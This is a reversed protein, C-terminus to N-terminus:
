REDHAGTVLEMLRHRPVLLRRGIQVTPIEGSRAAQYAAGRSIGLLEAAEPVSLTLAEASPRSTPPRPLMLRIAVRDGDVVAVRRRHLRGVASTVKGPAVGLDSALEDVHYTVKEDREVDGAFRYALLMATPGLAATWTALAEETHTGIGDTWDVSSVHPIVVYEDSV